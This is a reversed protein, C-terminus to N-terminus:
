IWVKTYITRVVESETVFGVFTFIAIAAAIAAAVYFIPRVREVGSGIHGTTALSPIVAHAVLLSLAMAIVSLWLVWLYVLTTQIQDWDASTLSQPDIETM